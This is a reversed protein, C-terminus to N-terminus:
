QLKISNQINYFQLSIFLSMTQKIILGTCSLLLNPSHPPM